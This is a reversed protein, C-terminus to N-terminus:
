EGKEIKISYYEAWIGPQLEIYCYPSEYKVPYKSITTQTVECYYKRNVEQAKSSMILLATITGFVLIGLGLLFKEGTDM